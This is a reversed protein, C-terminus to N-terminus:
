QVSLFKGKPPPLRGPHPNFQPYRTKLGIMDPFRNRQSFHQDIGVGPLFNLGREYGPAIMTKSGLPDGRVLYEGCITAGASTGCIVPFPNAADGAIENIAKLVGVQYSGRAGGGPLILATPPHSETM